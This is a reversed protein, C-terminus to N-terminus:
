YVLQLGSFAHGGSVNRDVQNSVHAELVVVRERKARGREALGVDEEPVQLGDDAIDPLCRGDTLV